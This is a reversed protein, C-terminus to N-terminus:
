KDAEVKLYGALIDGSWFLRGQGNDRPLEGERGGRSNETMACLNEKHRSYSLMTCKNNIIKFLSVLKNINSEGSYSGERADHNAGM